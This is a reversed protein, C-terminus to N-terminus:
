YNGDHLITVTNTALLMQEPMVRGEPQPLGILELHQILKKAAEEENEAIVVAATRIPYYGKFTTNTYLKMPKGMRRRLSRVESM